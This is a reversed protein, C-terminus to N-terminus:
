QGLALCSFIHVCCTRSRASGIRSFEPDPHVATRLRSFLKMSRGVVYSLIALTKRRRHTLIGAVSSGRNQVTFIVEYWRWSVFSGCGNGLNPETRNPGGLPRVSGFRLIQFYRSRFRVSGYSYALLSLLVSDRNPVLPSFGHFIQNCALRSCSIERSKKGPSHGFRARGEWFM